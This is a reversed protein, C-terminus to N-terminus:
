VNVPEPFLDEEHVPSTDRSSSNAIGAELRYLEELLEGACVRMKPVENAKFEDAKQVGSRNLHGRYIELGRDEGCFDILRQKLTAFVDLTSYKDKMAMWMNQKAGEIPISSLPPADEKPSANKETDQRARTTSAQQQRQQSGAQGDDDESAVGAMSQLAYRRGYSIASGIAQPTDMTSTMSLDAAIWQGSKHGLMTTVTVRPGDTVPIQIVAIGNENLPGRCADMVSELDSYAYSFDGKNSRVQARKDKLAGTMKLQATALAQFFEQLQPSQRFTIMDIVLNPPNNELAHEM